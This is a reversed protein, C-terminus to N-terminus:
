KKLILLRELGALDKVIESSWHEPVFDAQKEILMPSMEIIMVGTSILRQDAQAILQTILEYGAHGGVLASRPEFEKVTKPLEEYEAESVYPPNSLILDFPEDGAVSSLLDSQQFDIRDAVEHKEANRRAVELAADSVDVAVVDAADFHKAIAIAICGTGTGVDIIRLNRGHQKHMEPAFDLAKIVLDETEPRPILTADTVEFDLSYFEKHGVLYAVPTGESRRRVLDRFAAKIDDAPEDEFATYLEIRKCSRAEALLVEADLRPSDSGHNKLYDTTWTLLKGVTWTETTSM